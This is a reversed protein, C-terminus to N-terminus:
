TSSIIIYQSPEQLNEKFREGFTRSTEGVYEDDCSLDGCQFWYIAGRKNLMPDKDKPSVLINKISSNGKFHSRSCIRNISKCEGQSYPIVIHGKTKVENTTPQTGTTGQSHARNSVENTPKTHRKEVRYLAWKPYRCHTLVKSLHEM